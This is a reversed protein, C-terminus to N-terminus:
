LISLLCLASTSAHHILYCAVRRKNELRMTTKSPCLKMNAFLFFVSEDLCLNYIRHICRQIYALMHTDRHIYVQRHTYRHTHTNHTYTDRDAHVNAQIYRFELVHKYGHSSTNSHLYTRKNKKIKRYIM